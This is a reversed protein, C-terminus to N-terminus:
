TENQEKRKVTEIDFSLTKGQLEHNFCFALKEEAQAGTKARVNLLSKYEEKGVKMLVSYLGEGNVRPAQIPKALLQIM